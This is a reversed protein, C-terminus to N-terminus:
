FAHASHEKFCVPCNFTNRWGSPYGIQIGHKHCRFAHFPLPDKWGELQVNNLVISGLFSIKFNQWLTLKRMSPVREKTMTDKRSTGTLDELGHSSAGNNNPSRSLRSM